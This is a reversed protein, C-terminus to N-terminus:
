EHFGDFFAECGRWTTIVSTSTSYLVAAGAGAGAATSTAGAAAAGLGAAAGLTDAAVLTWDRRAGRRLSM